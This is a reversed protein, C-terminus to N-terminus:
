EAHPTNWIGRAFSVFIGETDSLFTPSYFDPNLTMFTSGVASRLGQSSVSEPGIVLSGVHSWDRNITEIGRDRVLTHFEFTGFLVLSGSKLVLTM